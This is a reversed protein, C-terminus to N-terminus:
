LLSKFVKDDIKVPYKKKLQEIWKEELFNQYDNIVLGRAEEFNRQQNAPYLKFIKVFTATGDATNIFPDTVAGDFFKSNVNAPIQTLEYRASDTQIQSANEVAVQKWDKGNKIQHAADNAMKENSCSILVADASVNWTYKTKHLNYYKKLGNSDNSAKTWVNREMIEFLMNGDKFEQLQYKFDANINPLQKRYIDLATQYIYKKMLDKAGEGNYNGSTKENKLFNFWDSLKIQKNNLSFLVTKNTLNSASIKRDAILFSDSIRSIAAENNATYNKYSLKKLIGNIFKESAATVRNDQLVQQKLTYLYGENRKDQLVDNKSIRKIIHYGFKTNFPTSIDGDKKLDFVNKEFFPDYKGVGFEPMIGGSEYTLKDNSFKKAMESFDAGNVIEQYISDATRKANVKYDNNADDPFAILIQAAKIKGVAKREEINKFIYYGTKAKYPKSVEGPKLSYIINEFNYPLTFVTVFGVNIWELKSSNFQKAVAATDPYIDLPFFVYAVHIDKQSRNFAEEVLLNVEKEDNLYGDEIQSKFNELDTALSAMTDIRLDQAAKVKLKFKIYLDLYERLASAKDKEETKNKNYARLFEAKSVVNKGYTFLTQSNIVTTLCTLIFFILLKKM